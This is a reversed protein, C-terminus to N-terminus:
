RFRRNQFWSGATGGSVRHGEVGRREDSSLLLLLLLIATATTTITATATTTTTTRQLCYFMHLSNKYYRGEELDLLWSVDTLSFRQNQPPAITTLILRPRAAATNAEYTAGCPIAPEGPEHVNENMIAFTLNEQKKKRTCRKQVPPSSSSFQTCRQRLM